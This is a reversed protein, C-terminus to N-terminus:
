CKDPASCTDVSLQFWTVNETSDGKASIISEARQPGLVMGSLLSVGEWLKYFQEGEMGFYVRGLSWPIWSDM